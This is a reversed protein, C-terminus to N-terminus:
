LIKHINGDHTNHPMQGAHHAPTCVCLVISALSPTNISRLFLRSFFELKETAVRVARCLSSYTRPTTCTNIYSVNHTCFLRKKKQMSISIPIRAFTSNIIIESRTQSFLSYCVACRKCAIGISFKPDSSQAMKNACVHVSLVNCSVIENLINQTHQTFTGTYHGFDDM